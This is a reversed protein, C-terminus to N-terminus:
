SSAEAALRELMPIADASDYTSGDTLEILSGGVSMASWVLDAQATLVGDAGAIEVSAADSLYGGSAEAPDAIMRPFVWDGGRWVIIEISPSWRCIVPDARRFAVASQHAGEPASDDEVTVERGAIATALGSDDCLEAGDYVGPPPTWAPRPDGAGRIAEVVPTLLATFHADGEAASREAAERLSADIWFGDVLVAGYCGNQYHADCYTSSRDGFLDEEFPVQPQDGSALWAAFDADARPLISLQLGVDHGGDTRGEGGWVCRLGGVTLLAIEHSGSPVSTEDVSVEVTEGSVNAQVLELPLLDACGAALAALPEEPPPTTTETPSPEAVPPETPEAEAACGAVSLAAVVVLVVLGRRHSRSM